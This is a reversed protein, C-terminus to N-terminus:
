RPNHRRKKKSKTLILILYHTTRIRILLNEKAKKSNTSRRKLSFILYQNVLEEIKIKILKELGSVKIGKWEVAKGVIKSVM